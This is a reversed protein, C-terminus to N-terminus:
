DGLKLNTTVFSGLDGKYWDFSKIKGYFPNRGWGLGVLKRVLFGVDYDGQFSYNANLGVNVSGIYINDIYLKIWEANRFFIYEHYNGYDMYNEILIKNDVGTYSTYIYLKHINSDVSIWFDVERNPNSGSCALGLFCFGNSRHYEDISATFRILWDETGCNLRFNNSENNQLIYRYNNNTNLDLVPTDDEMIVPYIVGGGLTKM